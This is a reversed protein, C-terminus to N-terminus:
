WVPKKGTPREKQLSGAGGKLSDGADTLLNLKKQLSNSGLKKNTKETADEAPHKVSVDVGSSRSAASV